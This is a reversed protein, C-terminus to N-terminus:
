APGPSEFVLAYLGEGGTHAFLKQAPLDPVEVVLPLDVYIEQHRVKEVVLRVVPTLYVIHERLRIHRRRDQVQV